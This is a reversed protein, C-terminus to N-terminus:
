QYRHVTAEQKKAWLCSRIPSNWNSEFNGKIKSQSQELQKKLEDVIEALKKSKAQELDVRKRLTKNEAQLEQSKM